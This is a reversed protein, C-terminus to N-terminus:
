LSSSDLSNEMGIEEMSGRRTFTEYAVLTVNLKSELETLLQLQDKNLEAIKVTDM